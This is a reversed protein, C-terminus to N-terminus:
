QGKVIGVFSGQYDKEEEIETKISEIFTTM